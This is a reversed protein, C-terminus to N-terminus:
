FYNKIMQLVDITIKVWKCRLLKIAICLNNILLKLTENNNCKCLFIPM